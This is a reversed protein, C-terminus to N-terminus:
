YEIQHVDFDFEAYEHNKGIYERIHLLEKIDINLGIEEICERKLTTHFTEGHEQGEM